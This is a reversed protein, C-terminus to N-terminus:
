KLEYTLRYDEKQYRRTPIYGATIDMRYKRAMNKLEKEYEEQEEENRYQRGDKELPQFWDIILHSPRIEGVKKEIEEFSAAELVASNLFNINIIEEAKKIQEKSCSTSVFLVTSHNRQLEKLMKEHIKEFDRTAVFTLTNM